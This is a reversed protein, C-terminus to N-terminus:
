KDNEKSETQTESNGVNNMKISNYCISVADRIVMTDSEPLEAIKTVCKLLLDQDVDIDKLINKLVSVRTENSLTLWKKMHSDEFTGHPRVFIGLIVFVAIVFVVISIKIFLKIKQIKTM